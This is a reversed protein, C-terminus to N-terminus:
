QAELAKEVDHKLMAVELRFMREMWGTHAQCYAILEAASGKTPVLLIDLETKQAIRVMVEPAVGGKILVNALEMRDANWTDLYLKHGTPELVSCSLALTWDQVAKDVAAEVAQDKPGALSTLTAIALFALSSPITFASTRM